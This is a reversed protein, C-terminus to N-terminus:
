GFANEVKIANCMLASLIMDRIDPDKIGMARALHISRAITTDMDDSIKQAMDSILSGDKSARELEETM